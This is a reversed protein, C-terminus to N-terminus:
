FVSGNETPIEYEFSNGFTVFECFRNGNYTNKARILDPYSDVRTYSELIKPIGNNLSLITSDIVKEQSDRSISYLLSDKSIELQYSKKFFVTKSERNSKLSYVHTKEKVFNNIPFVYNVLKTNDCNDNTQEVKRQYHQCSLFGIILILYLTQKM